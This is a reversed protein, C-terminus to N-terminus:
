ASQCAALADRLTQTPGLLHLPFEQLLRSIDADEEFVVQWARRWVNIGGFSGGVVEAKWRQGFGQFRLFPVDVEERDGPNVLHCNVVVCSRHSDGRFDEIWIEGAQRHKAM